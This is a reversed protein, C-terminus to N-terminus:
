RRSNHQIYFLCFKVLFRLDEEDSDVLDEREPENREVFRIDVKGRFEVEKVRRLVAFVIDCALLIHVLYIIHDLEEPRTPSLNDPQKLHKSSKKTDDARQEKRRNRTQFLLIMGLDIPDLFFNLFCKPCTTYKSAKTM